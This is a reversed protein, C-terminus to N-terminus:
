PVIVPFTGLSRKPESWGSRHLEVIYRGPALGTWTFHGEPSLQARQCSLLRPHESLLLRARARPGSELKPMPISISGTHPLLQFDAVGGLGVHVLEEGIVLRGRDKKPLLVLAVAVPGPQLLPIEFTGDAAVRVQTSVRPSVRYQIRALDSGGILGPAVRGRLRPGAALAEPFDVVKTEGPRLSVSMLHETFGDAAPAFVEYTGPGLPGLRLSESKGIPVSLEPFVEGGRGTRVARWDNRRQSPPQPGIKADIWCADMLNLTVQMTAGPLGEVRQTHPVVANATFASVMVEGPRIGKVEFQGREDAKLTETWPLRRKGDDVFLGRSGTVSSRLPEGAGIIVFANAAPEGNPGYVTGKLDMPRPITILFEDPVTNADRVRRLRGTHIIGEREVYVIPWPWFDSFRWEYIGGASDAAKSIDVDPILWGRHVVNPEELGGSVGLTPPVDVMVLARTIPAGRDDVVKVRPTKQGAAEQAPCLVCLAALILPSM